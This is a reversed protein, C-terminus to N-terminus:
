QENLLTGYLGEIGDVMTAVAFARGIHQLRADMEAMAAAPADIVHQMAAGLAPANGAPLLSAATPGFIEPIGGVNTALVPLQAAAAELVVYPLSEALSPVVACRGRAFMARAPQAGVLNVRQQLGLQAIQAELAPRGPGDGAMVLTAPQGDARRVEALADVLVHIGKLDRL